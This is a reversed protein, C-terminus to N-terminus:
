RSKLIKCVATSGIHDVIGQAMLKECIMRSSWRKYGAPPESAAVELVKQIVRDNIKSNYKSSARKKRYLADELGKTAYETRVTKITTETTHLKEALERISTKSEQASESLLLIKARMITRESEKEECIVKTLLDREPDTLKVFFKTKAM